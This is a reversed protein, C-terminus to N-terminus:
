QDRVIFSEGIQLNLMAQANAQNAAIEILGSSNRYWFLTNVPVSCFTEAQIIEKGKLYIVKGSDQDSYRRGTIANGYHDCYIIQDLNAAWGNLTKTMLRIADDAQQISLRAAIPAFLDRGHFSASCETPRWIIEHWNVRTSQVAVTNLLGNDPGVFYQEDAELVVAARAGGVGPDVVALFISGAPFNRRLAALLYSSLLPNGQPANSLLNIVNTNPAIQEIVSVMQGNYPGEAGFDTFLIIAM